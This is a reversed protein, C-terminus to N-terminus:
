LNLIESLTIEMKNSNEIFEIIAIKKCIYILDNRTPIINQVDYFKGNHILQLKEKELEKKLEIEAQRKIQLKREKTLELKGKDVLFDYLQHYPVTMIEENNLLKRLFNIYSQENRSKIEALELEIPKTQKNNYEIMAPSRYQQKYANLLNSVFVLGLPKDYLNLNVGIIKGEIGLRFAYIIEDTTWRGYVSKFNDIIFQLDEPVNKDNGGM